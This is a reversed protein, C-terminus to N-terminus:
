PHKCVRFFIINWVLLVRSILKIAWRLIRPKLRSSVNLCAEYLEFGKSLNIDTHCGLQSVSDAHETVYLEIPKDLHKATESVFDVISVLLLDDGLNYKNYAGRFFIKTKQKMAFFELSYSKTFYASGM